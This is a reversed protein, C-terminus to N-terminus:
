SCMKDNGIVEKQPFGPFGLPGWPVGLSGLPGWLVGLSGLSGLLGWPVGLSWPGWPIGLCECFVSRKVGTFAGNVGKFM